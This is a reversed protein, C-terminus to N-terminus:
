VEKWLCHSADEHFGRKLSTTHDSVVRTLTGCTFDELLHQTIRYCSFFLKEARDNMAIDFKSRAVVRNTVSPTM